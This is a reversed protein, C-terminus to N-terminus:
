ATTMGRMPWAQALMNPVRATPHSAVMATMSRASRVSVAKWVAMRRQSTLAKPPKVMAQSKPRPAASRTAQGM